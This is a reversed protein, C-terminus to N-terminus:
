PGVAPGEARQTMGSAAVAAAFRRVLADRYAEMTPYSVSDCVLKMQQQLPRNSGRELLVRALDLDGLRLAAETAILHPLAEQRTGYSVGGYAVTEYQELIEREYGAITNYLYMVDIAYLGSYLPRFDDPESLWQDPQWACVGHLRSSSLFAIYRQIWAELREAEIIQQRERLLQALRLDFALSDRLDHAQRCAMVLRAPDSEEALKAVLAQDEALALTQGYQKTVYAYRVDWSISTIVFHPSRESFEFILDRYNLPPAIRAARPLIERKVLVAGDANRTPRIEDLPHDAHLWCRLLALQRASAAEPSADGVKDLQSSVNSVRNSLEGPRIVHEQIASLEAAALDVPGLFQAVIQRLPPDDARHEAVARDWERWVWERRGEDIMMQVQASGAPHGTRLPERALRLRLASRAMPTLNTDSAAACLAPLDDNAGTALFNTLARQLSAGFRAQAIELLGNLELADLNFASAAACGMWPPAGAAARIAEGFDGACWAAAMWQQHAREHEVTDLARNACNARLADRVARWVAPRKLVRDLTPEGVRRQPNMAALFAPATERVSHNTAMCATVMRDLNDPVGVLLAQGPHMTIATYAGPWDACAATAREFWSVVTGSPEPKIAALRIMVTAAHPLDPRLRYARSLAASADSWGPISQPDIACAAPNAPDVSHNDLVFRYGDCMGRLMDQIWPDRFQQLAIPRALFEWYYHNTWIFNALDVFYGQHDPQYIDDNAAGVLAQIARQYAPAQFQPRAQWALHQCARFHLTRPYGSNALCSAAQNLMDAGSKTLGDVLLADGRLLLLFPDRCGHDYALRTAAVLRRNVAERSAIGTTDVHEVYAVIATLVHADWDPHHQGVRGYANTMWESQWARRNRVYDAYRTASALNTFAPIEAVPAAPRRVSPSPHNIHGFVALILLVLTSMLVLTGSFTRSPLLFLAGSLRIPHAPRARPALLLSLARRHQGSVRAATAGSRAACPTAFSHIATAGVM